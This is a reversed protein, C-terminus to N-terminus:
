KMISKLVVSSGRERNKELIETLSTMLILRIMLMNMMLTWIIQVRLSINLTIKKLIMTLVTKLMSGMCWIRRWMLAIPLIVAKWVTQVILIIPFTIMM